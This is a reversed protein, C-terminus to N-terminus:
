PLYMVNRFCIDAPASGFVFEIMVYLTNSDATQFDSLQFAYGQWDVPPTVTYKTETGDDPDLTDKIGIQVAQDGSGGKLEVYLRSYQSLNQGPRSGPAQPPGNTIFVTGWNQGGPYNMCLYGGMDSVWSTLRSPGTDIGMDYGSALTNGAYITHPQLGPTATAAPPATPMIPPPTATPLRQQSFVIDDVYVIVGEPSRKETAVWGFGDIVHTLDANQLDIHFAQWDTSLTVFGERDAERPYIPTPISSPYTGTYVGGVFFQVQSGDQPSRARFSLQAFNELNYGEASTGWNNEPEQWYIGAWGVENAVTPDYQIEVATEEWTDTLRACDNYTIAGDDGMHGSPAFHNEAAAYNVFVPFLEEQAPVVVAGPTATPMPAVEAVPQTDYHMPVYVSQLDFKNIRNADLMGWYPGVGGETKWLEDFAAFFFFEIEEQQALTLFEHWFRQENALSPVATGNVPGNSPWGTEGIVVQKGDAIEQTLHYMNLTHQAANEIAVGDWYAYIHVLVYDLAAILQPHGQLHGITEASTVPVDVAAKVQEIYAILEAETLDGRLLVENGVIVSEIGVDQQVLEILAAIEAENAAKDPGLWAGATVRLGLEQAMMPIQGQVGVSSYTRVANGMNQVLLLDERVQEASPFPGWHPNQCDRFPSFAIGRILEPVPQWEIQIDSIQWSIYPSTQIQLDHVAARESAFAITLTQPLFRSACDVATLSTCNAQWLLQEDDYISIVGGPGSVQVANTCGADDDSCIVHLLAIQNANDPLAQVLFRATSSTDAAPQCDDTQVGLIFGGPALNAACPVATDSDVTSGSLLLQSITRTPSPTLTPPATPEPLPTASPTTTPASEPAIAPPLPTVPPSDSSDSCGFLSFAFILGLFCFAPYSKIQM